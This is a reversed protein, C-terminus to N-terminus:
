SIRKLIINAGIDRFGNEEKKTWERTCRVGADEYHHCNTDGFDSHACDALSPETGLCEVDDLWIPDSAPFFFFALHLLFPFLYVFVFM